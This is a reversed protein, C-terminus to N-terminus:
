VGIAKMWGTVGNPHNIDMPKGDEYMLNCQVANNVCHQGMEVGAPNSYVGYNPTRVFEPLYLEVNKMTKLKDLIPSISFAFPVLEDYKAHCLWIKTKRDDLIDLEKISPLYAPAMILAADVQYTIIYRWACFGGASTGWVVTRGASSFTSVAEEYLGKLYETYVSNTGLLHFLRDAGEGLESKLALLTDESYDKQVMESVEDSVPTMWSLQVKDDEMYENALPCIIYAGGMKEQYEPSAFYEVGAWNIATIGHLSASSGHFAYIVPYKKNESYGHKTPDYVYYRLDGVKKDNTKYLREEFLHYYKGETYPLKENVFDTEALKDLWPIMPKSM